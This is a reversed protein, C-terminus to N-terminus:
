EAEVIDGRMTTTSSTAGSTVSTAARSAATSEEEESCGEVKINAMQQLYDNQPQSAEIAVVISDVLGSLTDPIGM